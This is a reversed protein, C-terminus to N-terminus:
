DETIWESLLEILDMPINVENVQYIEKTRDLM